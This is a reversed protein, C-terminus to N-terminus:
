KALHNLVNVMPESPVRILGGLPHDLELILFVACAVSFASAVLALTTTANPPAVLSFGFFIVVLWSVLAILLPRSISPIAQAQLLSRLQALDVMLTGVQTKLARQSDDHPSLHQITVYFADGAQENPAVQAVERREAPWMRRVADAVDDRCERRADAAEPGYLALVRDLFAVKAAMQMVESRVTDYTGKASSILLGLLLATMTAVLGMALKVADKSDASLHDEPLYRHVRRGLLAVGVLCVFLSGAIVASSMPYRALVALSLRDFIPRQEDNDADKPIQGGISV